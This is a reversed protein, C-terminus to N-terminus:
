QTFIWLASDVRGLPGIRLALELGGGRSREPLHYFQYIWRGQGECPPRSYSVAWCYDPAGFAMRITELGLGVLPSLDLDAPFSIYESPTAARIM